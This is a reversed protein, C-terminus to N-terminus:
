AAGPDGCDMVSGGVKTLLPVIVSVTPDAVGAAM